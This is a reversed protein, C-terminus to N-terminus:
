KKDKPAEKPTDDTYWQTSTASDNYTPKSPTYKQVEILPKGEAGRGPPTGPRGPPGGPGRGAPASTKVSSAVSDAISSKDPVQVDNGTKPPEDHGHGDGPGHGAGNGQLLEKPFNVFAVAGVMLILLTTLVIPKNRKKM